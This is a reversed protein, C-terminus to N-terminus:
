RDVMLPLPDIAEWACPDDETGHYVGLHLHTPTGAANGSNGVYGIMDGIEVRQGEFLDEHVAEFHTYFYRVGGDGVVTVSLGGLSLDDIRYVFGAAAARVATGRPAFLDQGDHGRNGSRPAGFTNAVQAVSLGDVPMALETDPVPGVVAFFAPLATRYRARMEFRAREAETRPEPPTAGPRSDCVYGDFEPRLIPWSPDPLTQARVVAALGIVAVASVAVVAWRVWTSRLKM